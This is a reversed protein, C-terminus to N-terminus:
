NAARSRSAQYTAVVHPPAPIRLSTEPAGFDAFAAQGGYSRRDHTRETLGCRLRIWERNSFDQCRGNATEKQGEGKTDIRTWERNSFDKAADM